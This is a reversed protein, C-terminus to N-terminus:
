GNGDYGISINVEGGSALICVVRLSTAFQKGVIPMPISLGDCDANNISIEEMCTTGDYILIRDKDTVGTWNLFLSYLNGMGNM